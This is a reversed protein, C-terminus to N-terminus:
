QEVRTSASALVRKRSRWSLKLMHAANGPIDMSLLRIGIVPFAIDAQYNLERGASIANLALARKVGSNLWTQFGVKRTSSDTSPNQNRSCASQLQLVEGHARHQFHPVVAQLGLETLRKFCRPPKPETGDKSLLSGAHELTRHHPFIANLSVSQDRKPMYPPRTNRGDKEASWM